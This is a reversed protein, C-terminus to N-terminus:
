RLQAVRVWDVYMEADASTQEVQAVYSLTMLVIPIDDTDTMTGVKVGDVFYDVKLQQDELDTYVKFGLKYFTLNAAVPVADDDIEVSSAKDVIFEIQGATTNVDTYFGIMSNNAEDLAGADIITTDTTCLGIFFQDPTTAVDSFKVRTEYWLTKNAAPIWNEGLIQVNVGDDAANNGASDCVLVGGLIDAKAIGGSNEATITYGDGTTVDECGLFDNWYRYGVGPHQGMEDWPCDAWLLESPGDNNSSEARYRVFTPM